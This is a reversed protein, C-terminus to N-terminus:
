RVLGASLMLVVGFYACTLAWWNARYRLRSEPVAYLSVGLLAFSGATLTAGVIVLARM